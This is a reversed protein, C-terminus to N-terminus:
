YRIKPDIVAYLVDALANFLIFMVGVLVTVGMVMSYDRNIAGNVFHQGIGGTGFYVDIIM